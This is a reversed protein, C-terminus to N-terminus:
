RSGERAWAAIRGPLQGASLRTATLDRWRLVAAPSVDADPSIRSGSLARAHLPSNSMQWAFPAGRDPVLVLYRDHPHGSRGFVDRYRRPRRQTIREINTLTDDDVDSGTWVDLSSTAHNALAALLLRLTDLNDSGRVYRDVLLARRIQERGTLRDCLMQMSWNGGPYPVRVVGDSPAPAEETGDEAPDPTITMTALEDPAPPLPSLDVAAALRWFVQPQDEYSALLSDHDPLTPRFPELPTEETLDAFLRRIAQRTFHAEGRLRRDMRSMAWQTAEAPTEPCIPVDTLRVDRWRGFGPVEVEGVALDKKFSEQEQESLKTFPVALRRYQTLWRGHPHLPGYAWTDMLRWLDVDVSEPEHRLPRQGGGTDVHGELRFGSAGPPTWDLTWMIKCRAGTKRPMAAASGHNSPFARLTFRSNQDVASTLIQDRDPTIPMPTIDEFSFRGDRSFYTLREVHLVRSGLLPHRAVWVDYVGQEPVPAEGTDAAEMGLRTLTGSRDCLSLEQCRRVVNEAGVETLGPLAQQVMAATIRGEADRATRCLIGLEPRRQQWALEALVAYRDVQADDTLETRM